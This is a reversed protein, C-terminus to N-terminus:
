HSAPHLCVAENAEQVGVGRQAAELVGRDLVNCRASLRTHAPMACKTCVHRRGAGDM